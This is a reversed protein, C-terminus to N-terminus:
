VSRSHIETTGGLANWEFHGNSELEKVNCIMCVSEEQASSKFLRVCLPATM